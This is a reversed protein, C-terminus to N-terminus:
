LKACQLASSTIIAPPTESRKIRISLDAQNLGVMLAYFGLSQPSVISFPTLILSLGVALVIVGDYPCESVTPANRLALGVGLYVPPSAVTRVRADGVIDVSVTLVEGLLFHRPMHPTTTRSSASAGRSFPIHEVRGFIVRDESLRTPSAPPSLVQMPRPARLLLGRSSGTIWVLSREDPPKQRGLEDTQNGSIHRLTISIQLRWYNM